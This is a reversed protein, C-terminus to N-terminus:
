RSGSTSASPSSGGSRSARISPEEPAAHERPAHRRRWVQWVGALALGIPALVPYFAFAVCAGLVCGITVLVFGTPLSRMEARLMPDAEMRQDLVLREPTTAAAYLKRKRGSKHAVLVLRVLVIALVALFIAGALLQRYPDDFVDGPPDAGGSFGKVKVPSLSAAAMLWGDPAM